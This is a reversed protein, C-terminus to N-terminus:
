FPLGDPENIFDVAERLATTIDKADLVDEHIEVQKLDSISINDGLTFKATFKPYVLREIFQKKEKTYIKFVEM